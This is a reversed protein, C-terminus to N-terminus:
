EGAYLAMISDFCPSNECNEGECQKKELQLLRLLFGINGVKMMNRRVDKGNEREKRHWTQM